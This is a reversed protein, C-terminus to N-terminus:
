RRVYECRATMETKTLIDRLGFTVRRTARLFFSFVSLAYVKPEQALPIVWPYDHLSSGSLASEQVDSEQYGVVVQCDAVHDDELRKQLMQVNVSLRQKLFVPCGPIFGVTAVHNLECNALIIGTLHSITKM